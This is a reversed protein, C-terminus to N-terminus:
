EWLKSARMGCRATGYLMFVQQTHSTVEQGMSSSVTQALTGSTSRSVWIPHGISIFKLNGAVQMVTVARLVRYALEECTRLKRLCSTPRISPPM